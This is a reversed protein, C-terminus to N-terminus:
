TCQAMSSAYLRSIDPTITSLSSCSTGYFPFYKLQNRSCRFSVLDHNSNPSSPVMRTRSRNIVDYPLTTLQECLPLSNSESKLM